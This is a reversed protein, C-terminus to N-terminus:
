GVWRWDAFSAAANVLEVAGVALLAVGFAPRRAFLTALAVVLPIAGYAYRAVSVPAGGLVILGLCTVGFIFAAVGLQARYRILLCGGVIVLLLVSGVDGEIEWAAVAVCAVFVAGLWFDLSRRKVWIWWAAGAAVLQVPWRGGNFGSVLLWFWAVPKFGLGQRWDSEVHAYALPDGFRSWCYLGFGLPGALAAGGVAYAGIGRRQVIAAGVFALLLGAGTVRTGSALATWLAASAYNRREFDRLALASFLLFPAESYAVSCFLSDPLFCLTAVTWRAVDTGQRERVWGFAVFLLGIFAVNAILTGAVDFPLGVRMLTAVAVPYVPFFAVSHHGGDPRFEYGNSAISRYWTGDWHVLRAWGHLDAAAGTAVPLHPAIAFMGVLVLARSVLWTGTIFGADVALARSKHATALAVGAM